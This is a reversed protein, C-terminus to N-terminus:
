VLIAVFNINTTVDSLTRTIDIRLIDNYKIQIKQLNTGYYQNNIFVDYSSINESSVWNLDVSDYYKESVTVTSGTGFDYLVPYSSPNEPQPQKRLPKYLKTDIETLQIVREVAPKVEFEDEDILFGMMTFVYTQIYYKRKEVEMSSEDTLDQWVIPIYHGKIVKYGQRSAFNRLIIKNFENLERMRNCVIKVSYRIDVPIPQPIKYVDINLRDGDYSPVSAYYFQKRNPINYVLSPLSGYKVEPHRVVTIFPPSVNKDLDQFNFTETFQTWNQTTVIIDIVPINKGDVTVKLDDKVFDLFGRDLDAHLISKPLFTGNENIKDLLEQRRPYLTRAPSLPITKKIQKPFAM